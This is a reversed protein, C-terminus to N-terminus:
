PRGDFAAGGPEEPMAPPQYTVGLAGTTFTKAEALELRVAAIMVVRATAAPLAGRYQIHEM